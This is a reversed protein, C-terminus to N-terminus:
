APRNTEAAPVKLTERLGEERGNGGPRRRAGDPELIAKLGDRLAFAAVALALPGLMIALYVLLMKRPM